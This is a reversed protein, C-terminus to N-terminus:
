KGPLRLIMGIFNDNKELLYSSVEKQLNQTMWVNSNLPETNLASKLESTPLLPLPDIM